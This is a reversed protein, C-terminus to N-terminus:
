RTGHRIYKLALFGVVSWFFLLVGLVLLCLWKDTMLEPSTLSYFSLVNVPRASRLLFRVSVAVHHVVVERGVNSWKGVATRFKEREFM